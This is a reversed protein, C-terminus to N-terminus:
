LRLATKDSVPESSAGSSDGTATYQHLMQRELKAHMQDCWQHAIRTTDDNGLVQRTRLEPSSLGREVLHDILNLIFENSPSHDFDQKILFLINNAMQSKFHPDLLFGIGPEFGKQGCFHTLVTEKQTFFSFLHGSAPEDPDKVDIMPVFSRLNFSMHGFDLCMHQCFDTTSVLAPDCAMLIAEKAPCFPLTYIWALPDLPEAPASSKAKGKPTGKVSAAPKRVASAHLEVHDGLQALDNFTSYATLLDQLSAANLLDPADIQLKFGLPLFHALMKELRDISAPDGVPIHYNGIGRAHSADQLVRDSSGVRDLYILCLSLLNLGEKNKDKPEYLATLDKLGKWGLRQITQFINKSLTTM